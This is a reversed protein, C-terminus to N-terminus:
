YIMIIIIIIIIITITIIIDKSLLNYYLMHDVPSKIPNPLMSLDKKFELLYLMKSMVKILCPYKWYGMSVFGM